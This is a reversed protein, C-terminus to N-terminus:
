IALGLCCLCACFLLMVTLDNNRILSNLCSYSDALRSWYGEQSARARARSPPAARGGWGGGGRMRKLSPRDNSSLGEGMSWYVKHYTAVGDAVERTCKCPQM